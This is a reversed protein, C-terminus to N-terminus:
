RQITPWPSGSVAAPVVQVDYLTHDGDYVKATIRDGAKVRKVVEEAKDVPYAMTMAGMWGEVNDHSVTLRKEEASVQEVKGQLVYSKKGAPQAHASPILMCLMIGTLSNIRKQMKM